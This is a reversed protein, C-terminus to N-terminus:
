TFRELARRKSANIHDLLEKSALDTEMNEILSIISLHENYTINIGSKLTGSMKRIRKNKDQIDLFVNKMYENKYASIIFLHFEDDLKHAVEETFGGKAYTDKFFNLREVSLNYAYDKVAIPEIIERVQFVEFVDKSTIKTVIIGKKPYITVLDEDQLMIMADRIPTRSVGLEESILKEDIFTGPAYECTLIKEKIYQYSKQKVSSKIKFM